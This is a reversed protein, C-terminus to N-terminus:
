RPFVALLRSKVGVMMPSSKQTQQVSRRSMFQLLTWPWNINLPPVESELGVIDNVAKGFVNIEDDALAGPMLSTFEGISSPILPM